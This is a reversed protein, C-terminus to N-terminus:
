PHFMGIQHHGYPMSEVVECQWVWTDTDKMLPLNELSKCWGYNDRTEAGNNGLEKWTPWSSM